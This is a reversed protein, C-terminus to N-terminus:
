DTQLVPPPRYRFDFTRELWRAFSILERQRSPSAVVQMGIPLGAHTFGCPLSLCPFGTMTGILAIAAYDIINRLPKGNITLVERDANPFPFVPAAVTLLFDYQEFFEVVAQYNRSRERDAWMIRPGSLDRGREANWRLTSSLKEGHQEILASFEAHLLAGRLVEYAEQFSPTFAPAAEEIDLGERIREIARSFVSAVEHDIETIGLNVSSAIRVDPKTTAGEGPIEFPHQRLSIPDRLDPGALCEVLRAADDISRGFTGIANFNQWAHPKPFSPITGIAPRFGVIGCFSAPMRVSGGFDSGIAVTSMGLSVAVASGGSSGGSTRSSDFPNATPGQLTNVVIAGYGFEPTNTKGVIVAGSRRLRAAVSDDQSPVHEAFLSSGFTTRLGATVTLDKVSVPVGTIPGGGGTALVGDATRAQEIANEAVTIFAKYTGDLQEIRQLCARVVDVSSFERRRFGRALEDVSLLTLDTM